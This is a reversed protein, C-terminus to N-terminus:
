LILFGVVFQLSWIIPRLNMEVFNQLLIRKRTEGMRECRGSVCCEKWLIDDFHIVLQSKPAVSDMDKIDHLQLPQRCRKHQGEEENCCLLRLLELATSSKGDGSNGQIIVIKNELLKQHADQLSKTSIYKYSEKETQITSKTTDIMATLKPDRGKIQHVDGPKLKKAPPPGESLLQKIKVSTEKVVEAAEVNVKLLADYLEEFSGEMPVIKGKARLKEFIQGFYTINDDDLGHPLLPDLATLLRQWTLKRNPNIMESLNLVMGSYLKRIETQQDDDAQSTSAIEAMRKKM